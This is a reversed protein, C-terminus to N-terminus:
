CEIAKTVIIATKRYRPYWPTGTAKERLAPANTVVANRVGIESGDITPSINLPILLSSNRAMGKKRSAPSIIVCPFTVSFSIRIAWTKTPWKRLPRAWTTLTDLMIKAPIEPEMVASVAAMAVTTIGCMSLSPYSGANEAARTAAAEVMAAITGGLMMAM